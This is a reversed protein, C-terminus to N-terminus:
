TTQKSNSDPKQCEDNVKNNTFAKGLKVMYCNLLFIDLVCYQILTHHKIRLTHIHINIESNYM